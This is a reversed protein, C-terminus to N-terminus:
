VVVLLVSGGAVRQKLQFCNRGRFQHKMSHNSPPVFIFLLSPVLSQFFSVCTFSNSSEFVHDKNQIMSADICDVSIGPRTWLPLLYSINTLYITSLASTQTPANLLWGPLLQFRLIPMPPPPHHHWLPAPVVGKGVKRRDAANALLVWWHETRWQFQIQTCYKVLWM